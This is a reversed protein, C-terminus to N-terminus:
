LLAFGLAANVTVRAVTLAANVANEAALVALGKSTLLVSRAAGLQMEVLRRANEQSLRGAAYEVEIQAIVKLLNQFEQEFYHALEGSAAGVAELAARAMEKGLKEVDLANLAM